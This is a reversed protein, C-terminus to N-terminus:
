SPYVGGHLIARRRFVPKVVKFGRRKFIDQRAQKFFHLLATPRSQYFKAARCLVTKGLKVLIEPSKAVIAKQGM